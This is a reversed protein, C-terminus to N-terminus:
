ADTQLLACLLMTKTRIVALAAEKIEDKKVGKASMRGVFAVMFEAFSICQVHKLRAGFVPDMPSPAAHKPLRSYGLFTDLARAIYNIRRMYAPPAPM